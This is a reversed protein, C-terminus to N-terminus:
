IRDGKGPIERTQYKNLLAESLPRNLRVAFKCWDKTPSIPCSAWPNAHRRWLMPHSRSNSRLNSCCQLSTSVVPSKTSHQKIYDNSAVILAEELVQAFYSQRRGLTSHLLNWRAIDRADCALQNAGTLSYVDATVGYGAYLM